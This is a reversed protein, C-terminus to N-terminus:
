RRADKPEAAAVADTHVTWCVAGDRHRRVLAVEGLRQYASGRTPTVLELRVRTVHGWADLDRPLKDIADGVRAIAEQESGTVGGPGAQEAPGSGTVVDWVFLEPAM